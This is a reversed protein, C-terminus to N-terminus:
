ELKPLNYADVLDNMEKLNELKAPYLIKVDTKIVKQIVSTVTPIVRKDKIELKILRHM